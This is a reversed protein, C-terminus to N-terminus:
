KLTQDIKQKLENANINNVSAITTIVTNRLTEDCQMYIARLVALCVSDINTSATLDFSAVHGNERQKLELLIAHIKNTDNTQLRKAVLQDINGYNKKVSNISMVSNYGLLRLLGRLSKFTVGFTEVM